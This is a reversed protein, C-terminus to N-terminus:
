WIQSTTEYETFMIFGDSARVTPGNTLRAPIEGGLNTSCSSFGNTTVASFVLYSGNDTVAFTGHFAASRILRVIDNGTQRWDVTRQERSFSPAYTAALEDQAVGPYGAEVLDLVKPLASLIAGPFMRAVISRIDDGEQLPMHDQLIVPGTDYHEAMRHFTLGIGPEDNLIQWGIPNPGRYKPLLSPHFNVAGMRPVRLLTLPLRFSFKMTLLLDPKIGELVAPLIALDPVTLVSSGYDLGSLRDRFRRLKAEDISSARGPTTVLVPVEHGALKLSDILTNLGAAPLESLLAIRM